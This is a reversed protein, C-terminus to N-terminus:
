VASRAIATVPSGVLSRAIDRIDEDSPLDLFPEGLDVLELVGGDPNLVYIDYFDYMENTESYTGYVTFEEGDVVLTRVVEMGAM